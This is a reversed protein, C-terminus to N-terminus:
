AGIVTLRAKDTLLRTIVNVEIGSNLMADVYVSGVKIHAKLTAATYMREAKQMLMNGVKAVIVDKDKKPIGKFM